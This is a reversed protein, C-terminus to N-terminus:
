RQVWPGEIPNAANLVQHNVPSQREAIPRAIATARMAPGLEFTSPDVKGSDKKGISNQCRALPFFPVTRISGM